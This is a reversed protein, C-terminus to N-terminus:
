RMMHEYSARIHSVTESQKAVDLVADFDSIISEWMRRDTPGMKSLICQNQESEYGIHLRLEQEGDDEVQVSIDDCGSYDAERSEPDILRERYFMYRFLSVDTPDTASGFDFSRNLDIPPLRVDEGGVTPKVFTMRHSQFSGDGDDYAIIVGAVEFDKIPETIGPPALAPISARYVCHLGLGLQADSSQLVPLAKLAAILRQANPHDPYRYPYISLWSSGYSANRFDERFDEIDAPDGASRYDEKAWPYISMPDDLANLFIDVAKHLREEYQPYADIGNARLLELSVFFENITSFHYWIARSGRTTRERISGDELLWDDMGTELLALRQQVRDTNGALTDFLINSWAWGMGFGVYVDVPDGDNRLRRAFAKFWGDIARHEDALAEPEFDVLMSYYAMAMPYIRELVSDSDKDPSLDTGRQTQWPAACQGDSCNVTQLYAGDQAWSALKQVLERKLDDNNGAWAVSALEAVTMSATDLAKFAPLESSNAMSSMLGELAPFSQANRLEALQLSRVPCLQARREEPVLALGAQVDAPLFLGLLSSTPTTAVADSCGASAAKLQALLDDTIPRDIAIGTKGALTEAARSTRPGWQGDASGVDCGRDALLQQFERVPEQASAGIVMCLGAVLGAVFRFRVM